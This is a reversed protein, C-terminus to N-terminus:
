EKLVIDRLIKEKLASHSMYGGYARSVTKQSKNLKSYKKNTLRPLGQLPKKTVACLTASRNRQRYHTTTGKSTKVQVKKLSRSKLRGQHHTM